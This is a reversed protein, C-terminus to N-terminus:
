FLWKTSVFCFFSFNGGNDSYIGTCAKQLAKWTLVDQPHIKEHHLVPLSVAKNFDNFMGEGNQGLYRKQGDSDIYSPGYANELDFPFSEVEFSNADKFKSAIILECSNSLLSYGDLSM